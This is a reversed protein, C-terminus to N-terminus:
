NNGGASPLVDARAEPLQSIARRVACGDAAGRRYALLTYAIVIAPFLTVLFVTSWHVVREGFLGVSLYIMLPFGYMDAYLAIIFVQVL